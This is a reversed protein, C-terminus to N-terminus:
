SHSLHARRVRRHRSHTAFWNGDAPIQGVRLSLKALAAELQQDEMARMNPM